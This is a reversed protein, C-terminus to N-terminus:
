SSSEYGLSLIFLTLLDKDIREEQSDKLLIRIAEPPTLAEKYPRKSTLAHYIDAIHLLQSLLPLDDKKLGKPYGTGQNDEHHQLISLLGEKFPFDPHQQAMQHFFDYSIQVHTKMIAWEDPDLIGPKHLIDPDINLKGLDHYLSAFGLQDAPLQSLLLDVQDQSIGKSLFRDKDALFNRFNYCYAATGLSHALTVPDLQTFKESVPGFKLCSFKFSIEHIIDKFIPTNLFHPLLISDDVFDPLVRAFTDLGQPNNVDIGKLHQYYSESLQNVQEPNFSDTRIFINRAKTTEPIDALFRPQNTQTDLYPLYTNDKNEQKYFLHLSTKLENPLLKALTISLPLYDPRLKDFIPQSPTEM